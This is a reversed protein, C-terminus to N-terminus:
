AGQLGFCTDVHINHQEMYAFLFRVNGAQEEGREFCLLVDGELEERCDLLVRAAGLLMATHADHGCAHMVGPTQSWCTRTGTLNEKEMVPLADCDARLLVTKGPKAGRIWGLVGGNEVVTHEIGMAELEQAIKEVTHLEQGSLEPHEHFYRRMQIMYEEHKKARELMTM